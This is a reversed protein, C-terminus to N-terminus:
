GFGRFGACLAGKADAVCTNFFDKAAERSEKLAVPNRKITSLYQANQNQNRNILALVERYANEFEKDTTSASVAEIGFRNFQRCLLRM